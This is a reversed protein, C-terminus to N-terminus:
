WLWDFRGILGPLMKRIRMYGIGGCGGDLRPRAQGVVFMSGVCM